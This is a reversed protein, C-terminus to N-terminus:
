SADSEVAERHFRKPRKFNPWFRNTRLFEFSCLFRYIGDAPRDRLFYRAYWRCMRLYSWDYLFSKLKM